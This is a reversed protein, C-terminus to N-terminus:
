WHAPAFALAILIMVGISLASLVLTALVTRVILAPGDYGRGRNVVVGPLLPVIVLGGNPPAEDGEKERM